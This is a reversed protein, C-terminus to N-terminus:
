FISHHEDIFDVGITMGNRWAIRANHSLDGILVHVQTPLM